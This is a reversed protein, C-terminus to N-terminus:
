SIMLITKVVAEGDTFSPEWQEVDFKKIKGM